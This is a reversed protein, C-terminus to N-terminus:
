KEGKSIVITISRNPLDVDEIRAQKFKLFAEPLKSEMFKVVRSLAQVENVNDPMDKADWTCDIKLHDSMFEFTLSVHHDGYQDENAESNITGLKEIFHRKLEELTIGKTDKSGIKMAPMANFFAPSQVPAVYPTNKYAWFGEGQSGGQEGRAPSNKGKERGVRGKEDHDKQKKWTNDWWDKFRNWLEQQHRAPSWPRVVNSDEPYDHYAQSPDGPTADGYDDRNALEKTMLEDTQKSDYVAAESRVKEEPKQMIEITQRGEGDGKPSWDLTTLELEIGEFSTDGELEKGMDKKVYALTIHGHFVPHEDDNELESLREHAAKLEKGLVEVKLVHQDDKKRFASVKGLTCKIPKNPLYKRVENLNDTLLGYKLTVHFKDERGDGTLWEDPINSLSFAEAKKAVAEPILAMVCSYPRSHTKAKIHM